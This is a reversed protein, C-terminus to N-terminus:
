KVTVSSSMPDVSRDSAVVSFSFSQNAEFDLAGALTLVGSENGLAFRSLIGSPTSPGFSYVVQM